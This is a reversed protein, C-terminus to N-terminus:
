HITFLRHPNAVLITDRIDHESGAFPSTGSRSRARTLVLSAITAWAIM